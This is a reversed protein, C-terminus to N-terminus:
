QITSLDLPLTSSSRTNALATQSRGRLLLLGNPIMRDSFYRNITSCDIKTSYSHSWDPSIPICKKVANEVAISTTGAKEQEKKEAKLACLTCVLRVTSLHEFYQLLCRYYTEQRHACKM